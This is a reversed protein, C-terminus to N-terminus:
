AGAPAARAAAPGARWRAQAHWRYMTAPSPPRASGRAERTRLRDIVSRLAAGRAWLGEAERRLDPWAYSGPRRRAPPSARRLLRERHIELARERRATLCGAAAWVYRLSVWFDRGARSRQFRESRHAACLWVTVGGPLTLQAREGQGRGMCIACPPRNGLPEGKYFSKPM